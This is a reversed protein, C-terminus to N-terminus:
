SVATRSTAASDFLLLLARKKACGACLDRDARTAIFRGQEVMPDLYQDIADATPV